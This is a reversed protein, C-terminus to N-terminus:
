KKLAIRVMELAMQQREEPLQSVSDLLLHALPQSAKPIRRFLDLWEREEETLSAREDPLTKRREMPVDYGWLWMESCNLAKALKSIVDAKPEYRGVVYNSIGGKGLGTAKALDAQRMNKISMAEKLRESTTSTKNWNAM